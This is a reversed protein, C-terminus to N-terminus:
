KSVTSPKAMGPLQKGGFKWKSLPLIRPEILLEMSLSGLADIPM